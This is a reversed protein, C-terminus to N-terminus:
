EIRYRGSSSSLEDMLKQTRREEEASEEDSFREVVRGLSELRQRKSMWRRRHMDLMQRGDLVVQTQATVAADLRQLFRQYDQWQAAPISGTKARRTEYGLRYAKLEELRGIEDDLKRQSEGMDRCVLQEESKAIARVKEIRQSKKM